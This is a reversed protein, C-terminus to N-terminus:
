HGAGALLATIATSFSVASILVMGLRPSRYAAWAAAIALVVLVVIWSWSVIGGDSMRRLTPAYYPDYSYFRAVVFSAAALSVLPVPALGGPMLRTATRSLSCALLLLGGFTLALFAAGLVLTEDPPGEGPTPGLSLMGLAVSAEYCTAAALIWVVVWVLWGAIRRGLQLLCPHAATEDAFMAGM